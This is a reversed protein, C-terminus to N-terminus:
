RTFARPNKYSYASVTQPRSIARKRPEPHLIGSSSRSSYPSGTSSSAYTSEDDDSNYHKENYEADEVDYAPVKNYPQLKRKAVQLPRFGLM